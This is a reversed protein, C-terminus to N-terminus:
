GGRAIDFIVAFLSAGMAGLFWYLLRDIKKELRDRTSEISDAMRGLSGNQQQEWSELHEIRGSQLCTPKACDDSM